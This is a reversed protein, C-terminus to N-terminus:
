QLVWLTNQDNEGTPKLPFRTVSPFLEYKKDALPATWTGKDAPTTKNVQALHPERVQLLDLGLPAKQHGHAALAQVPAARAEVLRASSGVLSSKAKQTEDPIKNRKSAGKHCPFPRLSAKTFSGQHSGKWSDLRLTM